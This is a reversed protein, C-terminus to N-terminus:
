GTLATRTLSCGDDVYACDHHGCRADQREAHDDRHRSTTSRQLSMDRQDHAPVAMIAGTGYGCSLIAVYYPSRVGNLPYIAYKGYFRRKELSIEGSIRDQARVKQVFEGVPRGPGHGRFGWHSRTSPALVMFTM